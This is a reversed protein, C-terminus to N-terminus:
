YIFYIINEFLTDAVSSDVCIACFNEHWRRLFDSNFSRIGSKEKRWDDDDQSWYERRLPQRAAPESANRCSSLFFILREKQNQRFIDKYGPGPTRESPNDNLRTTTRSREERIGTLIRSSVIFYLFFSLFFRIFFYICSLFFEWEVEPLDAFLPSRM